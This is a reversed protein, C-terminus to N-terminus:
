FLFFCTPITFKWLYRPFYSLEWLSGESCCFLGRSLYKAEAWLPKSLGYNAWVWGMRFKYKCKSKKRRKKKRKKRKKRKTKKKRKKKKRRRKKKKRKMTLLKLLLNPVVRKKMMRLSQIEQSGEPDKVSGNPCNPQFFIQLIGYIVHIFKM